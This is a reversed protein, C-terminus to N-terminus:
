ARFSLDEVGQSTKRSSAVQQLSGPMIGGLGSMMAVPRKNKQNTILTCEVNSRYTTTTTTTTTPTTSYDDDYVPSQLVM